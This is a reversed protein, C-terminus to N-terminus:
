RQLEAKLGEHAETIKRAVETAAEYKAPDSAYRDPHYKAVLRRYSRRVEEYSAGPSLELTRYWRERRKVPDEGPRGGVGGRGQAAEFAREWAEEAKDKFVRAQRGAKAGLTAELESELEAKEEATLGDERSLLESAFDSVNARAVDWFRKAIGM